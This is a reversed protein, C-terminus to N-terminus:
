FDEEELDFMDQSELGFAAELFVIVVFATIAIGIAGILGLITLLLINM